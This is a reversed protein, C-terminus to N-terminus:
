NKYTNSLCSKLNIKERLYKAFKNLLTIRIKKLDFFVYEYEDM